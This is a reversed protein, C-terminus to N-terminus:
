LQHCAQNSAPRAQGQLSLPALSPQLPPIQSPSQELDTLSAPQGELRGTCVGSCSQAVPRSPRATSTNLARIADFPSQHPHQRTDSENCQADADQDRPFVITRNICHIEFDLAYMRADPGLSSSTSSQGTLEIPVHRLLLMLSKSKPLGIRRWWSQNTRRWWPFGQERAGAGAAQWDIWPHARPALSTLLHLATCHYM